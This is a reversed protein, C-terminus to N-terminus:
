HRRGSVLSRALLVWGLHYSRCERLLELRRPEARVGAASALGRTALAVRALGPRSMGWHADAHSGRRQIARLFFPDDEDVLPASLENAGFIWEVGRRLADAYDGIGLRELPVLAMFAMGDQHVSYVPYGDIVSGDRTSYLWWWQGLPGQAEVLRDAVAGLWSPPDEGFREAYLSAGLLPYVQSAFSTVGGYVLSERNRDFGQARVVRARAAFRATLEALAITGVRRAAAESGADGAAAAAGALLLGLGMSPGQRLDLRESAAMLDRARADGAAALAWAATGLLSSHASTSAASYLADLRAGTALGAADSDDALAGVIVMATYLPNGERNVYRGDRRFTKHSFFPGGDEQMRPLLRRAVRALRELSDNTEASFSTRDREASLDADAM